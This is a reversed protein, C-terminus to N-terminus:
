YAELTVFEYFVDDAVLWVLGVSGFLLVRYEGVGALMLSFSPFLMYVMITYSM